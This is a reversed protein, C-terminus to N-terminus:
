PRRIEVACAIPGRMCGAAGNGARAWLRSVGARASVPLVLHVGSSPADNAGTLVSGARERSQQWRPATKPHWTRTGCSPVVQQRALGHGWQGLWQMMGEVLNMRLTQRTQPLLFTQLQAGAAQIVFAAERCTRNSMDEGREVAHRCGPTWAHIQLVSRPVSVPLIRRSPFIKRMRSSPSLM